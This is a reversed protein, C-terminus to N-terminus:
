SRVWTTNTVVRWITAQSVAFESAASKLNQSIRGYGHRDHYGTWEWCKSSKTVKEWFRDKIPRPRM